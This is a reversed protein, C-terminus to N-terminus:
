MKFTNLGLLKQALEETLHSQAQVLVFSVSMELMFSLYQDVCILTIEHM